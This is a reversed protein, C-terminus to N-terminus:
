SASFRWGRDAVVREAIRTKVDITRIPFFPVLSELQGLYGKLETDDKAENALLRRAGGNIRENASSVFVHTMDIQASVAQAGQNQVLKLTRSVTSDAAFLDIILNALIEVHQQKRTLSALEREVMIKATYAVVRKAMETSYIERALPGEPRPPRRMDDGVEKEV